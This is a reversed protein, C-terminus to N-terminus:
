SLRVLATDPLTAWSTLTTRPSTRLEQAGRRMRGMGEKSAPPRAQIFVNYVWFHWSPSSAARQRGVMGRRPGHVDQVDQTDQTDQTLAPVPLRDFGLAPGPSLLSLRLLGQGLLM